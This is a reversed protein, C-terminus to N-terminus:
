KLVDGYRRSGIFVLWDKMAQWQPKLAKWRSYMSQATVLPATQGFLPDHDLPDHDASAGAVCFVGRWGCNFCERSLSHNLTCCLPCSKTWDWAANPPDATQNAAIQSDPTKLYNVIDM